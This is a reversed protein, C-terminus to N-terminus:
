YHIMVFDSSGLPLTIRIRGNSLKTPSLQGHRVSEVKVVPRDVAIDLTLTDIPQLTWNVLPVVIGTDAVMYGADVLPVSCYIPPDVKAERVPRVLLDRM